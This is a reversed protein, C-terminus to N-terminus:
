QFMCPSPLPSHISITYFLLLLQLKSSRTLFLTSFSTLELALMERVRAGGSRKGLPASAKTGEEGEGRQSCSSSLVVATKFRKTCYLFSKWADQPKLTCKHMTRMAIKLSSKSICFCGCLSLKCNNASGNQSFSPLFPFVPAYLLM